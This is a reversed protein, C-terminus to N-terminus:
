ELFFGSPDVLYAFTLVYYTCTKCKSCCWIENEQVVRFCLSPRHPGTPGAPLVRQLEALLEARRGQFTFHFTAHHGIINLSTCHGVQFREMINWTKGTRILLNDRLDVVVALAHFPTM